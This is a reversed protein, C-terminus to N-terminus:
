GANFGYIRNSILNKLLPLTRLFYLKFFVREPVRFDKPPTFNDHLLSLITGANSVKFLM